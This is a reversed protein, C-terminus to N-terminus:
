SPIMGRSRKWTSGSKRNHNARSSKNVDNKHRNVKVDKDQGQGKPKGVVDKPIPPPRYNKKNAMKAARNAEYRARIAEPNECFNMKNAPPREDEESESEEGVNEIVQKMAETKKTKIEGELLAEYSDDYEDNYEPDNEDIDDTILSYEEYRHRVNNMHSKDDLMQSLNKPAGPLGKGRKIVCNPNDNTMVDYQDGDFINNRTSKIIKPPIETEEPPIYVETHDAESLDPPLNSELVAAIAEEHNDYRQLLKRIFGTGLHPLIELVNEIENDVNREKKPNKASALVDKTEPEVVPKHIPPDETIAIRDLIEKLASESEAIYANM